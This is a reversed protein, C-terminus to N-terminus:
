INALVWFDLLKIRKVIIKKKKNFGNNYDDRTDWDSFEPISQTYDGKTNNIIKHTKDRM